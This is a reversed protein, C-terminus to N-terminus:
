ETTQQEQPVGGAEPQPLVSLLRAQCRTKHPALHGRRDASSHLPSLHNALKQVCVMCNETHEFPDHIYSEEDDDVHKSPPVFHEVYATSAMPAMRKLVMVGEKDNPDDDNDITKVYCDRGQYLTQGQEFTEQLRWRRGSCTDWVLLVVDCFAKGILICTVILIIYEAIEHVTNAIDKMFFSVIFLLMALLQPNSHRKFFIDRVGMRNIM